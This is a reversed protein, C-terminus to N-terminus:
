RPVLKSREAPDQGYFEALRLYVRPLRDRLEVPRTFFLESTVAFYEAPNTAGYARVLGDPGRRRLRRFNTGLTQVWAAEAEASPLPPIGDASGDLQDLKHAFEHYVVNTGREPHGVERQVTRWDLVIPGRGHGSQGALARPAATLVGPVPGPRHGRLMITRAHIVVATVNRYPDTDPAFGVTLLAAHAAVTHRMEDTVPVGKAGEWSARRLLRRAHHVFRSRETDDLRHFESPSVAVLLDDSVHTVGVTQRTSGSTTSLFTRDLAVDGGHGFGGATLTAAPAVPGIRGPVGDGAFGSLDGQGTDFETAGVVERDTGTGVIQDCRDALVPDHDDRPLGARALASLERFEAEFGTAPDGPHDAV